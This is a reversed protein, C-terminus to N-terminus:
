APPSVGAEELKAELAQIRKVLFEKTTKNNLLAEEKDRLQDTLDRILRQAGGDCSTLDVMCWWPALWVCRCRRTKSGRRRRLWRSSRRLLRRAAALASGLCRGAPRRRPSPKPALPPPSLRRHPRLRLLQFPRPAHPSQKATTCRRTSLSSRAYSNHRRSQSRPPLWCSTRKTSSRRWGLSHRRNRCALTASDAGQEWWCVCVHVCVCACVQLLKAMRKSLSRSKKNAANYLATMEDLEDQSAVAAEKAAALEERLAAFDGDTSEVRAKLEAESRQLTSILDDQTAARAEAADARAQAEALQQTVTALEQEGAASTTAASAITDRLTAVTARENQLEQKIAALSAAREDAIVQLKACETKAAELAKASAASDARAAKVDRTLAQVKVKLGLAEAEFDGSKAAAAQSPVVYGRCLVVVYM